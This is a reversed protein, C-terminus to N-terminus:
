YGQSPWALGNLTKCSTNPPMRRKAEDKVSASFSVMLINAEGNLRAGWENIQTKGCGARANIVMHEPNWFVDLAEQQQISPTM